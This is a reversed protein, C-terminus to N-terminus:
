DVAILDPSGRGDMRMDTSLALNVGDNEENLKMRMEVFKLHGVAKTFGAALQEEMEMYELEVLKQSRLM